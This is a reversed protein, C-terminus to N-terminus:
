LLQFSIEVGIVKGYRCVLRFKYMARMSQCNLYERLFFIFFYFIFYFGVM